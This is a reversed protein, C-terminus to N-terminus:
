RQQTMFRHPVSRSDVGKRHARGQGGVRWSCRWSPQLAATTTSDYHQVTVSEAMGVPLSVEM